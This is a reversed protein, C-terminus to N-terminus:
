WSDLYIIHSLTITLKKIKKIKKAFLAKGVVVFEDRSTGHKLNIIHAASEYSSVPVLFIPFLVM